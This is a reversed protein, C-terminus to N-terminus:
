RHIQIFPIEYVYYGPDGVIGPPTFMVKQIPYTFQSLDMNKYLVVVVTTKRKKSLSSGINLMENYSPSYSVHDDFQFYSGFKRETLFYLQQGTYASITSCFMNDEVVVLCNEGKKKVYDAILKNGSFIFRFDMTTAFVGVVLHIWVLLLLFTNAIKASQKEPFFLYKQSKESNQMLWLVAVFFIYLHGHHRLFGQYKFYFFAMM